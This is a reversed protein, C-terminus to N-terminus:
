KIAQCLYDILVRSKPPLFRNPSYMIWAMGQYSTLVEWGQLVEVIEGSLLKSQATFIPLCAIGLHNLIGDLRMESHNVAYRGRVEVCVNEEGQRFHWRNDALNEGLFLCQHRLLDLPHEPRGHLELYRPSACVVQRVKQLPRAVLTELPHETIRIVLDVTDDVLNIERDTVLLQLEIEPYRALFAPILPQLVLRSFAKPAALMIRGRPVAMFKESVEQTAQASKLIEHCYGFVESGLETLRLKRTSRELLRAGLEQELRSIQRSVASPTLGLERAVASFSGSAVVRAFVAMDPLLHILQNTRM